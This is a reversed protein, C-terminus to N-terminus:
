RLSVVDAKGGIAAMSASMTMPRFTGLLPCYLIAEMYRKLRMNASPSIGTIIKGRGEAM